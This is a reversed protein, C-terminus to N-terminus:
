ITVKKVNECCLAPRNGLKFYHQQFLAARDVSSSSHHCLYMCSPPPGGPSQGVPDNSSLGHQVLGIENVTHSCLLSLTVNYLNCSCRIM